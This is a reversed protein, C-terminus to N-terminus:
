RRFLGLLLLRRALLALILCAASFGATAAAVDVLRWRLAWKAEHAAKQREALTPPPWNPDRLREFDPTRCGRGFSDWGDDVLAGNKLYTRYLADRRDADINLITDTAHCLLVAYAQSRPPVLLAAEEALQSAVYRYHFRRVSPRHARSLEVEHPGRWVADDSARGLLDEHEGRAWPEPGPPREEDDMSDPAGMGEYAVWDPAVETGIVFLGEGPDALVLHAAYLAAARDLADDASAARKRAEAYHLASLRHSRLHVLADDYRGERMLRRGLLERLRSGKDADAAVADDFSLAAVIGELEAVTLVREAIWAVDEWQQEAGPWLLAFADLNRGESLAFIAREARIRERPFYSNESEPGAHDGAPAGREARLLEAQAQADKGRRVLLKARVWHGVYSNRGGTDASDVDVSDNSDNDSDNDSDSDLGLLREALAFRGQRYAGAALWAPAYIAGRGARTEIVSAAEVVNAAQENNEDVFDLHARTWLTLSALKQVSPKHWQRALRAPDRLLQRGVLLLSVDGSAEVGGYDRALEKEILTQWAYFRIASDDDNGLLPRAAEGLCHALTRLDNAEDGSERCARPLGKAKTWQAGHLREARPVLGLVVEESFTGDPMTTMTAQRQLLRQIPFGGGCARSPRAGAAVVVVGVVVVLLLARLLARRMM